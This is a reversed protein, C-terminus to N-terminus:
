FEQVGGGECDWPCSLLTESQTCINDGCFAASTASGTVLGVGSGCTWTWGTSTTTVVGVTGASCLDSALSPATPRTTGHAGGLVGQDSASGFAYKTDLLTTGDYLTFTNLGYNLNRTTGVSLSLTSFQIGAQLISPSVPNTVEWAVSTTCTSGSTIICDAVTISGSPPPTNITFTEQVSSIANYNTDAAKTATVGCSGVSTYSLTTGSISCGAGALTVAYTVAGTGSGGTTALAAFTTPFNVTQPALNLTAQAVSNITYNGSFTITGGNTLTQSTTGPATYGSVAGWTITYTGVPQSTSTQSTGSGTITAPGTITWSSSINSSVAVTGSLVLTTFSGSASYGTGASNTAYGRYYILTGATMGTRSHTFIGTTTGGQALCNSTPNTTTGWCTGRASLAAGGTSTVNAGLTASTDTVSTATPTTVTPPIATTTFSGSASYGTGASNTAYGRYYILTGATMGTRSHTFIGTTTGGQALCNSTPNTTTGWCTGRATLAAAGGTSTVNAGLTAGTTTISTVTPTSVTPVVVVTGVTYSFNTFGSVGNLNVFDIRMTYTGATSPAIFSTSGSFTTGKAIYAQLLTKTLGVATVNVYFWTSANACSVNTVSGTVAITEGPAYNSKNLNVVGTWGSGINIAAAKAVEFSFMSGAIVFLLGLFLKNFTSKM